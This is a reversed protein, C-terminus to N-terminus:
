FPCDDDIGGFSETADGQNVSFSPNSNEFLQVEDVNDYFKTYAGVFGLKVVGLSGFRNKDIKLLAVGKTSEGVSCYDTEDAFELEGFYEPRHIFCIKTADQELTGSDRLDTQSPMRKERASARSLQHLCIMACGIKKTCDRLAASTMGIADNTTKGKSEPLHPILGLYDICVCELKEKRHLEIIKYELAHANQGCFDIVQFPADAVVQAANILRKKEDQTLTANDIKKSNVDALQCFLRSYLQEKTMEYTFFVTNKGKCAEAFALQLGFATKGMGPRAAILVYEPQRIIGIKAFVSPFEGWELGDIKIGSVLENAFTEIDFDTEISRARKKQAKSLEAVGFDLTELPSIFPKEARKFLEYGVAFLERKLTFDKLIQCFYEFKEPSSAYIRNTTKVINYSAEKYKERLPSTALTYLDIPIKKKYLDLIQLYCDRYFADCFDDADILSNAIEVFKFKDQHNKVIDLISGIIDQELQIQRNSVKKRLADKLLEQQESLLKEDEKSLEEYGRQAEENVIQALSKEEQM